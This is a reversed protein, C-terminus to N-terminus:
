DARTHKSQMTVSFVLVGGLVILAILLWIFMSNRQSYEQEVEEILRLGPISIESNSHYLSYVYSHIYSILFFQEMGLLSFPGRLSYKTSETNPDQLHNYWISNGDRTGIFSENSTSTFHYIYESGQPHERFPVYDINGCRNVLRRRHTFDIGMFRMCSQLSRRDGLGYKSRQLAYMNATSPISSAPDSSASIDHFNDHVSHLPKQIAPSHEEIQLMQKIRAASQIPTINDIDISPDDYPLINNNKHIGGSTEESGGAAHGSNSGGKRAKAWAMHKPDAQSKSYDHLVYVRHPTYIDYGYTWFRVARSVEEGDFIYPLHPDYPVKKEAHCKSFSLGAGWLANTLKPFPLMRACKTGWNRPLGYEGSFEVMCLHPVEQLNQFGNKAPDDQVEMQELPAVYTSLIAYENRTLIWMDIMKVDWATVFNMHADTQMCYQQTFQYLSPSLLLDSGLARAYQPGNAHGANIRRITIQDYFPCEYKKAKHDTSGFHSDHKMLDCYGELCDVDEEHNNQQILGVLIRRPMAAKTYLNFLTVPCLSDRYSAISIFISPTTNLGSPSPKIPHIHQLQTGYGNRNVDLQQWGQDKGLYLCGATPSCM